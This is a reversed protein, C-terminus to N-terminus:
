FEVWFLHAWKVNMLVDFQGLDLHVDAVKNELLAIAGIATLRDFGLQWRLEGGSVARTKCGQDPFEAADLRHASAIYLLKALGHQLDGNSSSGDLINNIAGGRRKARDVGFDALDGAAPPAVM